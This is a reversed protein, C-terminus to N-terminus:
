IEIKDILFDNIEKTVEIETGDVDLKILKTIETLVDYDYAEYECENGRDTQIYNAPERETTSKAEVEYEQNDIYVCTSYIGNHEYVKEHHEFNILNM